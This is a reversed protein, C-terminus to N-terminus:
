VIIKIARPCNHATVSTHAGGDEGDRTWKVSKDFHFSIDKTHLLTVHPTNFNKQLINSVIGSIDSANKPNKILLVEFVGDDLSVHETPLKVIGAVSTSNVVAGFIYDDELVGDDYEIRAHCPALNPLTTIAQLLYALYGLSNKEAQPTAYPIDTFMGFAAVYGFYKNGLRGIDLTVTNGMDFRDLIDEPIKPIGLTSAMDNTTGLPFYGVIPRKEIPLLMLGNIVENLTGDGGTCVIRDYKSGHNYAFLAADGPRETTYVATSQGGKSLTTLISLLYNKVRGKGSVPNIVLMTKQPM